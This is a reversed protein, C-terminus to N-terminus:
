RMAPRPVGEERGEGSTGTSGLLTKPPPPTPDMRTDLFHGLGLLPTWVVNVPVDSVYRTFTEGFLTESPVSVTLTRLM